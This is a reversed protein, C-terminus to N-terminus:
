SLTNSTKKEYIKKGLSQFLEKIGIDSKASTESFIMRYNEAMNKASSLQVKKDNIDSDCKNGALCLVIKDQDIKNKLEEL